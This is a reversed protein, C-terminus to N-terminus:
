GAGRRHDQEAEGHKEGWPEHRQSCPQIPHGAPLRRQTTSQSSEEDLQQGRGLATERASGPQSRIASDLRVQALAYLRHAFRHYVQNAGSEEGRKLQEIVQDFPMDELM